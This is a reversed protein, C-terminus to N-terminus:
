SVATLRACATTVCRPHGQREPKTKSHASQLTHHINVSDDYESAQPADPRARSSPTRARRTCASSATTAGHTRSSFPPTWWALSPHSARSRRVAARPTSVRARWARARAVAHAVARRRARRRQADRRGTGRRPVTGAVLCLRPPGPARAPRRTTPLHRGTQTTSRTPRPSPTWARRCTPCRRRGSLVAQMSSHFSHGCGLTPSADLRELCICGMPQLLATRRRRLLATWRRRGWPREDRGVGMAGSLRPLGVAEGPWEGRASAAQTGAPLGQPRLLPLSPLRALRLPWGFATPTGHFFTPLVRCLRCGTRAVRPPPPPAARHPPAATPRRPPAATRRHPPPPARHPPAGARRDSM